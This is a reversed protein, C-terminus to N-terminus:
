PKRPSVRVGTNLTSFTASRVQGASRNVLEIMVEGILFHGNQAIVALRLVDGDTEFKADLVRQFKEELERETPPASLLYRYVDSRSHYAAYDAHDGRVFPRLLLRETEYQSQLENLNM